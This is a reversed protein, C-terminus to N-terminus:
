RSFRVGKGLGIHDLSFELGAMKAGKLGSAKSLRALIADHRALEPRIASVIVDSPDARHDARLFTTKRTRRLM